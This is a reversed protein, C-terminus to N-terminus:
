LMWPAKVGVAGNEESADGHLKKMSETGFGRGGQQLGSEPAGANLGSAQHGAEFPEPAEAWFEGAKAV